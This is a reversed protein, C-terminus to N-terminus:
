KNICNELQESRCKNYQAESLEEVKVNYATAVIHPKLLYINMIVDTMASESETRIFSKDVDVKDPTPKYAVLAKFYRMSM